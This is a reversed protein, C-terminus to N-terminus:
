KKEIGKIKEDMATKRIKDSLQKVLIISVDAEILARRIDRMGARVDSEKLRGKGTLNRAIEQIKETLNEFM